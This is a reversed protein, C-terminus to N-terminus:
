ASISEKNTDLKRSTHPFCVESVYGVKGGDDVLRKALQLDELGTIREDFRYKDWTERLIASNANNCWYGEQPLDTEAPFFKDFFRQESYKTLERGVQRGYSYQVLGQQLPKVLEELWYDNQPVCHGSIYVLVEGNSFESGRNLSRGFSFDQKDIYTVRCRFNNAIELTRDTSGSDIVVTEVTINESVVQRQITGLLEALYREENLTRIIISIIM